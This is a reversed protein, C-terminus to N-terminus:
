SQYFNLNSIRVNNIMDGNNGSGTVVVVGARRMLEGLTNFVTALISDKNPIIAEPQQNADFQATALSLSIIARERFNNAYVHQLIRTYADSVVEHRWGRGGISQPLRVVVV